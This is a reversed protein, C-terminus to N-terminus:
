SRPEVAEALLRLRFVPEGAENRVDLRWESDEILGAVIDRALDACIGLAAKRAAQIDTLVAEIIPESPRGSQM